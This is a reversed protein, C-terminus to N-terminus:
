KVINLKQTIVENAVKVNVYYLGTSLKEVPLEFSNLGADFKTNVSVVNQGLANVVEVVVEEAEVLSVNVTAHSTAPNPFISVNTKELEEVGVGHTVEFAVGAISGWNGEISLLEQGEGDTVIVYGNVGEGEGSYWQQGDGYADTVVFTYCGNELSNYHDFLTAADQGGASAGNGVYTGSAVSEGADNYINWETEGPYNDTMVQVHIAAHSATASTLELDYNNDSDVLDGSMVIEFTAFITNAPLDALTVSETENMELLGTWDQSSVVAGNILTNITCTTMDETGLNQISIEPTIIEDGCAIMSGDYSAIGANSGEVVFPPLLSTGCSGNIEEYLGESTWYFQDDPSQGIETVTKDEPCIRYITPYYALAYDNAIDGTPDDALAFNIMSTWDGISSGGGMLESEPTSSDAEIAIIFVEDTGHDGYAEYMEEMVGYEAFSWCPGCWTAFLDLIVPKGEDLISYLNHTDGNIDTITFDPAISGDALQAYSTTSSLALAAISLLLKKMKNTKNTKRICTLVFKTGLVFM